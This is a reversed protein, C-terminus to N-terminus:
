FEQRVSARTAVPRYVSRGPASVSESALRDQREIQQVLLQVQEEAHEARHLNYFGWGLALLLGAAYAILAAPRVRRPSPAAVPRAAIETALSADMTAWFADDATEPRRPPPVPTAEAVQELLAACTPCRDIHAEFLTLESPAMEGDLYPAVRDPVLTCDM